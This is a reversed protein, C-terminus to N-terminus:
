EVVFVLVMDENCVFDFVAPYAEEEPVSTPLPILPRTPLTVNVLNAPVFVKLM